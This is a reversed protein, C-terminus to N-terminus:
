NHLYIAAFLWCGLLIGTGLRELGPNRAFAARFVVDMLRLALILLIFGGIWLVLASLPISAVLGARRLLALVGFSLAIGLAGWLSNKIM